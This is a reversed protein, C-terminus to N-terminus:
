RACEAQRVRAAATRRRSEDFSFFISLFFRADPPHLLRFVCRPIYDYQQVAVRSTTTTGSNRSLSLPWTQRLEQLTVSAFSTERAREREREPPHSLSLSSPFGSSLLGTQGRQKDSANPAEFYYTPQKRM